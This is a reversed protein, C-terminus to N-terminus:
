KLTFAQCYMKLDHTFFRIVYSYVLVDVSVDVFSIITNGMTSDPGLRQMLHLLNTNNNERHKLVNM